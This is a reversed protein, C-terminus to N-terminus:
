NVKEFGVGFLVLNGKDLYYPITDDSNMGTADQISILLNGEHATYKFDINRGMGVDNMEYYDINFSGTGDSNFTYTQYKDEVYDLELRWTGVIDEDINVSTIGLEDASAHTITTPDIKFDPLEAKKLEINIMSVTTLDTTKDMTNLDAGEYLFHLTMNGTDNSHTVVINSGMQALEYFKTKLVDFGNVEVMEYYGYSKVGGYNMSVEGDEFVLYVSTTESDALTWVGEIDKKFFLDFVFYVGFVLVATLLFAVAAILLPKQILRKKEPVESSEDSFEDNEEEASIGYRMLEEDIDETSVSLTSTEETLADETTEDITEATETENEAVATESDSMQTVESITEETLNNEKKIDM